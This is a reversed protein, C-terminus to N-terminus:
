RARAPALVPPRPPPANEDREPLKWAARVAAELQPDWSLAGSTLLLNLAEATVEHRAGVESCQVSPVPEDPGWNWEVLRAVSQTTADEAIQDAVEQEALLLLDVFTDGLARSGNPTDGLDVVGSLAMRTMQQDLYRVFGLTDPVSGSLGVLVPRFGPPSAMGAQDGARAASAMKQAADIQGQTPNTGPLAEMNLLGTGFRRGSIALVRWMERKLLWPGYAPRLLSTGRYASGEREHSYWQLNRAPIPVAQKGGIGEAQQVSELRGQRDADIVVFTSQHREFLNSLHAQGDGREVDAELEFAAHGFTLESLATRLHAGWRVGRVRAGSPAREDGKVPLGLDDSVLQVVEPRAGMPDLHWGARAIPYVYAKLIAALQPDRRMQGYTQVSTPWTLDPVTELLDTLLGAWSGEDDIYGRVSTPPKAPATM